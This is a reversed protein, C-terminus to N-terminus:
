KALDTCRECRPRGGEGSVRHVKKIEDGYGCGSQDHFVNRHEPGYEPSNTHFAPIKESM